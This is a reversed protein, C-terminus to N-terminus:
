KIYIKDSSYLPEEDEFNFSPEILNYNFKEEVIDEMPTQHVVINLTNSMFFQLTAAIFWDILGDGVLEINNKNYIDPNKSIIKEDEFSYNFM